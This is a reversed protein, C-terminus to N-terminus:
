LKGIVAVFTNSNTFKDLILRWKTSDIARNSNKKLTTLLHAQAFHRFFLEYLRGIVAIFTNGNTFKDLNLRWKTSDNARNSKKKLHPCYIRKPLIAFFCHRSDINLEVISQKIDHLNAPVFFPFRINTSCVISKLHFHSCGVSPLLSGFKEM